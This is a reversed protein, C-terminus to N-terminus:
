VSVQDRLRIETLVPRTSEKLLFLIGSLYLLVWHLFKWTLREELKQTTPEMKNYEYKHLSM